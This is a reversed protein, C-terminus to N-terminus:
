SRDGENGREELMADAERYAAKSRLTRRMDAAAAVDAGTSGDHEIAGEQMLMAAMAQGAFWDRLTMGRMKPGYFVDAGNPPQPFAPGGTKVKM